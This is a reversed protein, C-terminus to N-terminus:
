HHVSPSTWAPTLLVTDSEILLVSAWSHILGLEPYYTKLSIVDWSSSFVYHDLIWFPKKKKKTLQSDRLCYLHSLITLTPLWTLTSTYQLILLEHLRKVKVLIFASDGFCRPFEPIPLLNYYDHKITKNCIHPPFLM